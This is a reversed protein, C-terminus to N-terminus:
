CCSLSACFSSDDDFATPFNDLRVREESAHAPMTADFFENVRAEVTSRNGKKAHADLHERLIKKATRADEESTMLGEDVLKRKVIDNRAMTEVFTRREGPSLASKIPDADFDNVVMLTYLKTRLKDAASDGRRGPPAEIPFPAVGPDYSM